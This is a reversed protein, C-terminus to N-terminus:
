LSFNYQKVDSTKEVIQKPYKRRGVSCSDNELCDIFALEVEFAGLCEAVKLIGLPYSWLNAAAFDYIWPNVLLIKPRL